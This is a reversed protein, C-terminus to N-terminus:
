ILSQYQTQRQVQVKHDVAQIELESISKCHDFILSVLNTKFIYTGGALSGHPVGVPLLDCPM